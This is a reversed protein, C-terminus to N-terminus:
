DARQEETVHQEGARRSSIPMPRKRREQYIRGQSAGAQAMEVMRERAEDMSQLRLSRVLWVPDTGEGRLTASARCCGSTPASCRRHAAGGILM